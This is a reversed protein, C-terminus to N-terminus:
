FLMRAWWGPVLGTFEEVRDGVIGAFEGTSLVERRALAEFIGRESWWGNVM